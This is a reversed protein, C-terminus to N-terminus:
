RYRIPGSLVPMLPWANSAWFFYVGIQALPSTARREDGRRNETAEKYDM